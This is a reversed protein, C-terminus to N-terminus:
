LAKNDSHSGYVPEAVGGDNVKIISKVFSFMLAVIYVLWHKWYNVAKETFIYCSKIVNVEQKCQM